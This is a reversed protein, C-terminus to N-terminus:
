EKVEVVAHTTVEAKPGHADFACGCSASKMTTGITLMRAIM